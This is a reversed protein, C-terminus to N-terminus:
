DPWGFVALDIRGGADFRVGEAQLKRRQRPDPRGERRASIAGKSNVVRHWPVASGAPLAAMAFGVLLPTCGGALRAVRGYTTVRGAPVELVAAYIRAYVGPEPPADRSSGENM